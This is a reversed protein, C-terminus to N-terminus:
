GAAEEDLPQYTVLVPLRRAQDIWHTVEDATPSRRALRIAENHRRLREHLRDPKQQALSPVDRIGLDELMQGFVTGVGKVRSRDAQRVLATLQDLDSRISRALLIRDDYRGAAALLQDCTTISRVKLMAKLRPSVQRLKALSLVMPTPTAPQVMPHLLM